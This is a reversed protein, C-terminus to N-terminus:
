EVDQHILLNTSASLNRYRRKKNIGMLECLITLVSQDQRHNERSSGPPAICNKILACNKWAKILEIMRPSSLKFGVIAGNCNPGRLKEKPFSFHVLTSKHTFDEINGSSYPSYFENKSIIKKVKKLDGDLKNGADLWLLIGDTLRSTQYIITPKWAYQGSNIKINFYSPYLDFNFSKFIFRKYKAELAQKFETSMGLDWIIVQSKPEHIKISELLNDLSRQHTFDAATVITTKSYSSLTESNLLYSVNWIVNNFVKKSLTIM